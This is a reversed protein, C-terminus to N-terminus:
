LDKSTLGLAKQLDFLPQYQEVTVPVLASGTTPPTFDLETAISSDGGVQLDSGTLSLLADKIAAQADAPLTPAVTIPDNLIPDSKWIETYQSPDFTKSQIASAEMQSNIEAADVKGHVLAELAEPHGGAYETKVSKDVGAQVLAYRPVWDGSTSGSEALALSHGALQDLSTIPSGKKVWIGATYTSVKGDQDAFSALPVAGAQQSAFVFGAPGFEALDLQGNKMALIEAVYSDAIKLNVTCGLKTSLDAAVRQYAPILKAADDYPEVGFTLSGKACAPSTTAADSSTGSDASTASSADAAPTLQPASTDANSGCATLAVGLTAVGALAALARFKKM